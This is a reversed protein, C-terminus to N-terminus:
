TTDTPTCTPLSRTGPRAMLGHEMSWSYMKVGAPGAAQVTRHGQASCGALSLTLSAVALYKSAKFLSSAFM